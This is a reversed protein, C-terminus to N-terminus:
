GQFYLVVLKSTAETAAQSPASGVALAIETGDGSTIRVERWDVPKCQQAYEVIRERRSFPPMSPMYIIKNQFTIMMLCKWTWLAVFLGTFVLPPILVAPIHITRYQHRYPVRAKQSLGLLRTNSLRSFPRLHGFPTKTTFSLDLRRETSNSVRLIRVHNRTSLYFVSGIVPRPPQTFLMM